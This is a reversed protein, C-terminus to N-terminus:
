LMRRYEHQPYTGLVTVQDAFFALEDLARKLPLDDPRGEVDLYFETAAFSGGHLYSELKTMNVGNTAFGGLAKYLAAPVNRVRFVLTTVAPTDAAPMAPERAMVLFRTTNHAEDNLPAQLVQLGYLEGALSSSVAGLSIDGRRAVEEAARATDSFAQPTLGLERLHHRSQALAQPHSIVTKLDALTAGPLGLLCHSVPQFHEAVIFQGSEPLLHHIDAVRGATSNEVPIVGYEAAGERVAIFVDEFSPCPYTPRDPFIARASLDSYAGRIGQFAVPSQHSMGLYNGSLGTASLGELFTPAFDGPRRISTSIRRIM